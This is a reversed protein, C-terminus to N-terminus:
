KAGGAAEGGLAPQEEAPAADPPPKYKLFTDTVVFQFINMCLPTVIMVFILRPKRSTIWHTCTVALWGWLSGGVFMVAVVVLKMLSVIFCWVTIQEGWTRYDPNVEWDIGTEGKGYKGSDYGLLRESAKLLGYCVLVGFTTDLMINVWYWSCEDAGGHGAHGFIFACLMNLCHIMGAGAIQKSSDLLFIWFKRQPKELRWKLLLTGLTALFLLGQVVVGFFDSLVQCEKPTEGGAWDAADAVALRGRSDGGLLFGVM